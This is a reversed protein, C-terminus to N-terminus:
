LNIKVFGLVQAQALKFLGFFKIDKCKFFVFSQIL